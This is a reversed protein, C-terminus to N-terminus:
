RLGMPVVSVGAAILRIPAERGIVIRVECLDGAQLSDGLSERPRVLLLPRRDDGDDSMSQVADGFGGVQVVLGELAGDLGDSTIRATMGTEVRRADEISLRSVAAINGQPLDILACSVSLGREVTGFVAWLLAAVLACGLLLLVLWEHPAMIRLLGDIPETRGRRAFAEDRFLRRRESM